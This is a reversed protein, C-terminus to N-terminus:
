RSTNVILIYIIVPGTQTKIAEILCIVVIHKSPKMILPDTNKRIVEILLHLIINERDVGM